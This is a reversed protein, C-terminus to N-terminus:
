TESKHCARYTKGISRTVFTKM